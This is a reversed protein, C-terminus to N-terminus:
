RTGMGEQTPRGPFSCWHRCSFTCWRGTLHSTRAIAWDPSTAGCSSCSRPILHARRVLDRRHQPQLRQTPPEAVATAGYRKSLVFGSEIKSPVNEYIARSLISLHFCRFEGILWPGVSRQRAARSGISLEPCLRGGGRGGLFCSMRNMINMIGFMFSSFQIGLASATAAILLYLSDRVFAPTSSDNSPRCGGAFPARTENKPPFGLIVSPGKASAFSTM